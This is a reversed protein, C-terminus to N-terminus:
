QFNCSGSNCYGLLGDDLGGGTSLEASGPGVWVNARRVADAGLIAGVPADDVERRAYRHSIWYRFIADASPRVLPPDRVVDRVIRPVLGLRYPAVDDHLLHINFIELSHGHLVLRSTRVTVLIARHSQCRRFLPSPALCRRLLNTRRAIRALAIDILLLMMTTSVTAAIAHQRGNFAHCHTIVLDGSRFHSPSGVLRASRCEAFTATVGEVM